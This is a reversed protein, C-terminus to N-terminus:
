VTKFQIDAEENRNYARVTQVANVKLQDNGQFGKDLCIIQSPRLAAMEEVCALSIAEDLCFLIMRDDIALVENGGMQLHEVPSTLPYGIKLLLEALMDEKNRGALVHDSILKLQEELAQVAVDPQGTEEEREKAERMKYALTEGEWVKFNSTALHYSRFGRDQPQKAEDQSSKGKDLLLGQDPRGIDNDEQDLKNIVRQVRERTIHAITPYGAKRAASDAPTHEPLQVLIFKRNGEDQNNLDLVAHATTGSGTFFDLIIDHTNHETISQICHAVLYKSKPYPFVNKGVLTEVEIGGDSKLSIISKMLINQVDNLYRVYSPQTREDKGFWIQGQMYTDDHLKVVEGNLMDQFTEEKWRWGRDPITVPIGTAPHRIKYRPGETLGNPWSLNIKGWINFDRDLNNYLTIGRDFGKKDYLQRLRIEADKIEINKRKCEEVLYYIDDLGEKPGKFIHNSQSNKAYLLIYEHINGFGKDNKPIRKNWVIKEIFNEEGFIENMMLTLNSEEDAGISVFIVGDERLLNRALYLRPYMMSLWKSHFRGERETNAQNKKGGEDTQGTYRLYEELGEQFNDPYIFEKGTNYPPDIYIMKIKNYYSKQLLKLVELNDGEIIMNETADFNVSEDRMPRLTAVSPAQITRMAEAKGPWFLGFRERVPEVWDGLSRRLAEFDVLGGDRFVEPCFEQLSERLQQRREAAVDLSTLDLKEPSNSNDSSNPM